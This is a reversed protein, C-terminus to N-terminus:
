VEREADVGAVQQRLISIESNSRKLERKVESMKENAKAAEHEAKDLALKPALSHLPTM